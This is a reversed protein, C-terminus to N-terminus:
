VVYRNINIYIIYKYYIYIYISIIINKICIRIVRQKRAHRKLKELSSASFYWFPLYINCYDIFNVQLPLYNGNQYKNTDKNSFLAVRGFVVRLLIM